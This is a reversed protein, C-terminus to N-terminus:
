YLVFCFLIPLALLQNKSFNLLIIFGTYIHIILSLFIDTIVCSIGSWLRYCVFLYFFKYLVKALLNWLKSSIYFNILIYIKPFGVSPYAPQILLKIHILSISDRAVKGSTSFLLWPAWPTRPSNKGLILSFYCHNKM